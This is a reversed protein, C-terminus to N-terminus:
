RGAGKPTPDPDPQTETVKHGSDTQAASILNRNKRNEHIHGEIFNKADTMEAGPNNSAWRFGELFFWMANSEAVELQHDLQNNM